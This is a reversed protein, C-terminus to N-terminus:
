ELIYQIIKLMIYESHCRTMTITCHSGTCTVKRLGKERSFCGLGLCQHQSRPPPPRVDAMSHYQHLDIYSSLKGLHNRSKGGKGAATQALDWATALPEIFTSCHKHPSKLLFFPTLFAGQLQECQALAM